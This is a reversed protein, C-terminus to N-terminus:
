SAIIVVISFRTINSLDAIRATFIHLLHNTCIIFYQHVIIFASRNNFIIQISRIANELFNFLLYVM